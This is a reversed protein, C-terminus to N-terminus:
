AAGVRWKTRNIVINGDRIAMAVHNVGLRRPIEHYDSLNLVLLEAGKGPELSGIKDGCNMAYAANITTAVIAEEISVGLRRVALALVLQMNFNLEYYADYGSGIAIAGGMDLLQRVGTEPQADLLAGGAKFVAVANSEALARRDVSSLNPQCFVSAPSSRELWKKAEEPSGASWDFSMRMDTGNLTSFLPDEDLYNGSIRVLMSDALKRKAVVEVASAVTRDNPWTAIDREPAWFRTLGVPNHGVRELQRLMSLDAAMSNIGSSAKIGANLTGHSLCARMLAISEDHFESLKRRKLSTKGPDPPAALTLQLWSDVFGPMVICNQVPIEIAARAEKLNELRRTSGVSVIKGDRIFVSGDEIIALNRSEPGRRVSSEGRLTLLQKAGRLLM